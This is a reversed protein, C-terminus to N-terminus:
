HNVARLIAKAVDAKTKFGAPDIGADKAMDDLKDRTNNTFKAVADSDLAAEPAAEPRDIALTGTRSSKKKSRKM